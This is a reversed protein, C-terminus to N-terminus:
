YFPYFPDLYFTGTVIKSVEVPIGKISSLVSTVTIPVAWGVIVYIIGLSRFATNSSDFVFSFCYTLCILAPGFCIMVAFIPGKTYDFNEIQMMALILMFGIAPVMYLTMDFLLNGIYYPFSKMGIFNLLYRLKFERDNVPCLVFVGSCLAFGILM